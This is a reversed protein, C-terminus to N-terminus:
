EGGGAASEDDDNPYRNHQIRSGAPRHVRTRDQLKEYEAQDRTRVIEVEGTDPPTIFDAIFNVFDQVSIPPADHVIVRFARRRHRRRLEDMIIQFDEWRREAKAIRALRLLESSGIEEARLAKIARRQAPNPARTASRAATKPASSARTRKVSIRAPARLRAGRTYEKRLDALAAKARQRIRAAVEPSYPHRSANSELTKSYPEPDLRVALTTRRGNRVRIDYTVTSFEDKSVTLIWRGPALALFRFQGNDNSVQVLSMGYNQGAKPTLTVIAGAMPEGTNEKITADIRGTAPSSRPRSKSRSAHTAGSGGFFNGFADLINDGKALDHGSSIDARSNGGVVTRPGAVTPTAAIWAGLVLSGAVTLGLCRIRM